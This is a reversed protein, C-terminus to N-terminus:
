ICQKKYAASRNGKIYHSVWLVKKPISNTLWISTIQNWLCMWMGLHTGKVGFMLAFVHVRGLELLRQETLAGMSIQLKERAGKRLILTLFLYLSTWFDKAIAVPSSRQGHVASILWSIAKQTSRALKFM